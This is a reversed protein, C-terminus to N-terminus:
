AERDEHVHHAEYVSSRKEGHRTGGDMSFEEMEVKLLRTDEFAYGQYDAAKNSLQRSFPHAIRNKVGVGLSM